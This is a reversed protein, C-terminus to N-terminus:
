NKVRYVRQVAKTTRIKRMVNALHARGTVGMVITVVATIANRDDVSVKEITGGADSIKAALTALVGKGANLEVKFVASFEGSINESWNVPTCKNADHRIERLNKCNDRHVVIGKGPSLHGIIPDGPVPHCCRAYNIVLGSSTDIMIPPQSEAPVEDKQKSAPVMM